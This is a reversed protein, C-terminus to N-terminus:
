LLAEGRKSRLRSEATSFGNDHHKTALPRPATAEQGARRPATHPAPSHHRSSRRDRRNERNPLKRTEPGAVERLRTSAHPAQPPAAHAGPARHAPARDGHPPRPRGARTSGSRGHPREAHRERAL